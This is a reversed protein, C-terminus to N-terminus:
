WQIGTKRKRKNKGPDRGKKLAHGEPTLSVGKKLQLNSLSRPGITDGKERKICGKKEPNSLQIGREGRFPNRIGERQQIFSTIL